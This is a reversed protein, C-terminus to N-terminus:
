EIHKLHWNSEVDFCHLKKNERQERQERERGREAERTINVFLRNVMRDFLAQSISLFAVSMMNYYIAAESDHGYFDM